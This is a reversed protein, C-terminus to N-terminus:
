KAGYKRHRMALSSVLLDGHWKVTTHPPYNDDTTRDVPTERNRQFFNRLTDQQTPDAFIGRDLHEMEYQFLPELERIPEKSWILHAIEVGPNDDLKMGHIEQSRNAILHSSKNNDKPNPFLATWKKDGNEGNGEGILYLYGDQAPQVRFTIESGDRFPEDGTADFEEYTGDGRPMSAHLWLTLIREPEVNPTASPSQSTPALQGSSKDRRWIAVGILGALLVICAAYFWRRHLTLWSKSTSLPQPQAFSLVRALEDGFDRARKHRAAPYYELAKLIAEQAAVPLEPNLDCPKIKIGAEQMEKLQEANKAPLPHRGTVMEYAIIGLAYIDCAADVKKRRLQEPAMYLWTGGLFLETATSSAVLSNRVKAIGFDIVKVLLDGSRNRYLMINEPKLDRHFIEAEHATTLTRGIQRVIEAVDEFALGQATIHQQRVDEIFQRLNSGEVFEMVFYHRCDSLIGADFIGVIGPDHIKSLAEIEQKFKTVLWERKAKEETLADGRMIKIIVPRSMVNTDNAKYVEGFGGGGLRKIVEYRNAIKEGVLNNSVPHIPQSMIETDRLAEDALVALGLEAVPEQLFDAMIDDSKLLTNIEEQLAADGACRQTVFALREPIILPLAAHYIEEILQWRARNNERGEEM